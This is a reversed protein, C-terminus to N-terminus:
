SSHNDADKCAIGAVGVIKERMVSFGLLFSQPMQDERSLLEGQSFLREIEALLASPNPHTKILAFVALLLAQSVGAAYEPQVDM